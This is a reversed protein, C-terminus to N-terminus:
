GAEREASEKRLFEALDYATRAITEMDGPAIRTRGRKLMAAALHWACRDLWSPGPVGAPALRGSPDRRLPLPDGLDHTM